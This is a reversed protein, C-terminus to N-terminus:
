GDSPEKVTVDGRPEDIDAPLDKIMVDQIIGPYEAWSKLGDADTFYKELEAPNGYFPAKDFEEEAILQELPVRYTINITFYKM